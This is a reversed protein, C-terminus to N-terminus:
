LLYVKVQKKIEDLKGGASSDDAYWSQKCLDKNVTEALTDILPKIGLAYSAMAAVDGQTCGEESLLIHQKENSNIILKAPKQYHNLIFTHLPPCLQKINHLAVQRNLRNFANDADVQILAETSDDQWLRKSFHITAEIGSRLGACTQLPGAAQEIDHKLHTIVAKGIIRRLVEGIGIPRVGVNGEKDYGKDLPILRCSNFEELHNPNTTECCLCKAFCALSEALQDSAKGFSKSCLIHKWIDSDVLTPGGSGDLNM